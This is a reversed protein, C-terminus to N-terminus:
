KTVCIILFHIYKFQPICFFSLFSGCVQTADADCLDHTRETEIFSFVIALNGLYTRCDNREKTQMGCKLYICKKLRTSERFCLLGVFQVGALTAEYIVHCLMGEWVQHIRIWNFVGSNKLHRYFVITLNNLYTYFCHNNNWMLPVM